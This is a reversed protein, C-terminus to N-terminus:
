DHRGREFQRIAPDSRQGRRPHERDVSQVYGLTAAAVKQWDADVRPLSPPPPPPEGFKEPFLEDIAALTEETASQLINSEQITTAVHHVYVVLMVIGLLSLVVALLVSLAPIFEVEDSGRVVRLVIVCYAFIAVFTGLVVQNIRDRIFNRLIRSTYQSSALSLTVITISFIVGAVTIMSTAISSLMARSGDSSITFVWALREDVRKADIRSDIAIMGFALAVAALIM